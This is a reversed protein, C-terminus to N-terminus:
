ETSYDQQTRAYDLFADLAQPDAVAERSVAREVPTGLLMKRVPVELKKGTRTMPIGPVAVIRDPVHRPSYTRRLMERIRADLAADLEAGPALCVFLPMFSGGGPLDLNVVLADLVEPVDALARYIEATGIRVGHRNLTADSRGLVFCGGRANTRLLDGQRWIGPFTDFYTARYRTGDADGWLRVPMSPMPQTIVFEGVEGVVSTGHEDFAQLAVGLMPAQIEGAYVPQTPVGGCFGTCCDTGGSGTAVWLDQKVNRYFWATCQPSVPAGAPMVTRLSALEYRQGPVVGARTMLDVYSPSAGFLTAGAEDAVRWLVDPQPHAPHGDYLVPAVGLALSSALFNWMMWGTTTYFMLRDGPRLDQHFSPAKLQELLTGGHGHLLPKPLGTTGSSFLVWLPHDFPVQEFRFDGDVPQGLVDDWGVCSVDGAATRPLGLVPVDIVVRLTPLQAVLARREDRRDFDAGGYRYGDAAILVSPDLQGFRDLAGRVGYDPSCAAWVAGIATTALMAVVTAPINPLWAVVRDGPQVGTERLWTAAARVAAALESWSLTELARSEAGHVIAVGGQEARRMLHEAFNLRAGPFWVAGPMERRGLVAQPPASATVGFYDWIAQWFGDLDTVSWRWLAAYTEFELGREASLWRTFRTLNAAEVREPGPSWLLDGEAVTPPVPELSV